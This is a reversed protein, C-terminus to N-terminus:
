RDKEKKTLNVGPAEATVEAMFCEVEPVGVGRHEAGSVEALLYEAEPVGVWQHGAAIGRDAEIAAVELPGTDVPEPDRGEEDPIGPVPAETCADLTVPEKAGEREPAITVTLARGNASSIRRHKLDRTLGPGDARLGNSGDRRLKGTCTETGDPM